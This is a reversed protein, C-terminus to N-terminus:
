SAHRRTISLMRWHTRRPPPHLARPRTPEGGTPEAEAIVAGKILEETRAEEPRM